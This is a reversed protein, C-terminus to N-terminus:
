PPRGPDTPDDYLVDIAQRTRDQSTDAGPGTKPPVPRLGPDDAPPPTRGIAFFLIPGITNVLLIVALWPWRSRGALREVPTHFLRWLAAAALIVQIVVLAILAGRVGSSLDNWSSM